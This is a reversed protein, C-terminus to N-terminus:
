THSKVFIKSHAITPRSSPSAGRPIVVSLQICRADPSSIRWESVTDLLLWRHYYLHVPGDGPLDTALSAASVDLARLTVAYVIKVLHRAAFRYAGVSPLEVRAHWHHLCSAFAEAVVLDLCVIFDSFKVYGLRRRGGNQFIFFRKTHLLNVWTSSIQCLSDYQVPDSNASNGAKNARSM